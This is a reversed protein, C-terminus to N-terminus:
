GPRRQIVLRSRLPRAGGVAPEPEVARAAAAWATQRIIGRGLRRRGEDPGSWVTFPEALDAEDPRIGAPHLATRVVYAGPYTAYVIAEDRTAFPRSRALSALRERWTSLARGYWTRELQPM